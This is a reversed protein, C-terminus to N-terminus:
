CLTEKVLKNFIKDTKDTHIKRTSKSALRELINEATKVNGITGGEYLNIITDIRGKNAKPAGRAVEKLWKVGAVRKRGMSLMPTSFCADTALQIPAPARARNKTVIAQLKYENTEWDLRGSKQYSIPKNMEAQFKGAENLWNNLMITDMDTTVTWAEDPLKAEIAWVYKLQQELVQNLLATSERQIKTEIAWVYKLEREM